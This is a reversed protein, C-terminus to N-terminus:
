PEVVVRCTWEPHSSESLVYVGPTLKIRQKWDKRRSRVNGHGLPEGNELAVGVDIEDLGSRNTLVFLYEGASVKIEAPEFGEARVALLMVQIDSAAEGPLKEQVPVPDIIAPAATHALQNEMNAMRTALSVSATAAVVLLAALSLLLLTKRKM